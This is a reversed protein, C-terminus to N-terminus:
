KLAWGQQQALTFVRLLMRANGRELGSCESASIGRRGASGFGCGDWVPQAAM